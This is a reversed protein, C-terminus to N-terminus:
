VITVITNGNETFAALELPTVPFSLVYGGFKVKILTKYLM